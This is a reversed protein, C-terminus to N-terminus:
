DWFCRRVNNSDRHYCFEFTRLMSVCVHVSFSLSSHLDDHNVLALVADFPLAYYTKYSTERKSLRKGERYEVSVNM